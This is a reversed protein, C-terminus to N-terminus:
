MLELLLACVAPSQGYAAQCAALLAVAAIFRMRAKAEPVEQVAAMKLYVKVKRSELCLLLTSSSLHYGVYQQTTNQM